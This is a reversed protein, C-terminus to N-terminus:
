RRSEDALGMQRYLRMRERESMEGQARERRADERRETRAKPRDLLGSEIAADRYTKDLLELRRVGRETMHERAWELFARREANSPSETVMLPQRTRAAAKASLRAGEIEQVTTLSDLHERLLAKARGPEGLYLADVIARNVPTNATAGFAGPAFSKGALEQAEAYRRTMKSAYNRERRVVELRAAEMDSGAQGLVYTAARRVTRTFSSIREAYDQLDQGTLRGQELARRALNGTEKVIAIGPPQTPDYARRRDRYDRMWQAPYQLIGIGGTALMGEFAVQLGLAVTRATDDDELAKELEDWDPGGVQYGFMAGRLATLTLGGVVSFGFYRVMPMLAKARPAQVIERKGTRPNMMTVQEGKPAAIAKLFPEMHNMAFMRSLQNSFKWYKFLFRGTATDAWLPVQDVKYSGQTLNVGYRLFRDIEAGTRRGEGTFQSAEALLAYPDFGNRAFWAAEHKAAASDFGKAWLGLARDLKNQSALFAHLRILRETPTYGGIKMALSVGKSLWEPALGDADHLLRLYDDHLIGLERADKIHTSLRRLQAYAKLADRGYAMNNLSLGGILNLTATGPNGLMLGTALQNLVAMIQRNTTKVGSGYVVEALANLYNTTTKDEKPVMSLVRDFLDGDKHKQGFAEIQALRDTSRSLYEVARAFRHDYLAEPFGETRAMEVGAFYDGAVQHPRARQTAVYKKAESAEAIVGAELLVQVLEAWAEPNAAPNRMAQEFKPLLVRPFFRKARGMPRYGGLAADFVEVGAAQLADGTMKALRMWADILGRAAPSANEYIQKASPGGPKQGRDWVKAWGEFEREADVKVGRDRLAQMPDALLTKLVVKTGFAERMPADLIKAVEGNLQQVRDYYTRIAKGLTELGPTRMLLEAAGEFTRRVGEIGRREFITPLRPFFDLPAAESDPPPAVAKTPTSPPPRSGAPAEPQATDRRIPDSPSDAVRQFAPVADGTAQADAAQAAQRAERLVAALDTAGFDALEAWGSERLWARIVGVAEEIMRRLSGTAEAMHALLEEVIILPQQDAKITPNGIVGRVYDGLDINQEEALRLAGKLGGVRSLLQRMKPTLERGYRERLGFHAYHEHFVARQADAADAFRDAVIYSTGNWHAARIETPTAGQQEAAERINAPLGSYDVVQVRDSTFGSIASETAARSLIGAAGDGRSFFVGDALDDGRQAGTGREYTAAGEQIETSEVGASVSDPTIPASDPPTTTAAGEAKGWAPYWRVRTVPTVSGRRAVDQPADFQVWWGDARRTLVGNVRPSFAGMLGGMPASVRDGEALGATAVAADKEAMRGSREADFLDRITPYIRQYEPTATFAQIARRQEAQSANPGIGALRIARGRLWLSADDYTAFAPTVESEPQAAIAGAEIDAQPRPSFEIRDLEANLADMQGEGLRRDLEQMIAEAGPDTELSRDAAMRLVDAKLDDTSRFRPARAKTAAPEAAEIDAQAPRPGADQGIQPNTIRDGPVLQGQAPADGAFLNGPGDRM